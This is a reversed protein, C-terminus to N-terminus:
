ILSIGSGLKQENILEGIWTLIMSGTAIILVNHLLEFNGLTTVIQQSKLLNLFAYSQLAALPVTLYRSYRNFKARGASGEEHYMQKLSPFIMTLLQMIISATIYPGVGLMMISLNSLGCGSFLNLLGFFQSNAFFQALATTDIGPVTIANGLRFIVLIVFVFLLRRVLTQDSGILKLKYFFQDM